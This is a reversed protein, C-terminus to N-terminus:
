SQFTETYTSQPHAVEVLLCSRQLQHLLGRVDGEVAHVHLWISNPARRADDSQGRRKSGPKQMSPYACVGTKDKQGGKPNPLRGPVQAKTLILPRLSLLRM